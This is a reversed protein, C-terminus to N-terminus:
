PIPVTTTIKEIQVVLVAVTLLFQIIAAVTVIVITNTKIKNNVEAVKAELRQEM